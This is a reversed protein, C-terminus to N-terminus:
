EIIITDFDEITEQQETSNQVDETTQNDTAPRQNIFNQERQNKEFELQADMEQYLTRRWEPIEAYLSEDVDLTGARATIKHYRIYYDIFTFTDLLESGSITDFPGRGKNIIGIATCLRYSYYPNLNHLPTTDLPYIKTIWYAFESRSIAPNFQDNSIPITVRFLKKNSAWIINDIYVSSSDFENYLLRMVTIADNFTVVDKAALNMLFANQQSYSISMVFCLLFAMLLKKM